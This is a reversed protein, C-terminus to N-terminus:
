PVHHRGGISRHSIPVGRGVKWNVVAIASLAIIFLILVVIMCVSKTAQPKAPLLIATDHMTAGFAVCATTASYHLVVAHCNLNECGAM